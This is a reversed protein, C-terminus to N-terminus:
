FMLPFAKKNRINSQNKHNIFKLTLVIKEVRM